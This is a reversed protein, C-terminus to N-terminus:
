RPQSHPARHLVRTGESRIRAAVFLGGVVVVLLTYLLIERTIQRRTPEETM